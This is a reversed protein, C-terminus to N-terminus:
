PTRGNMPRHSHSAYWRQYDSVCSAVERHAEGEVDPSFDCLDGAVESPTADMLNTYGNEFVANDLARDVRKQLSEM